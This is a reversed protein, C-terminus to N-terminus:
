KTAGLLKAAEPGLDGKEIFKELAYTPTMSGTIKDYSPKCSIGAPCKEAKALVYTPVREIQFQKFLTPDIIIGAEEGEKALRQIHEATKKFSNGEIGRFVVVANYLKAYDFMQRLLTDGLGFSAFMYFDVTEAGMFTERNISKNLLQDFKGKSSEDLENAYAINHALTLIVLSLGLYAVTKLKNVPFLM